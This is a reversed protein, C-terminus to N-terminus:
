RFRPAHIPKDLWTTGNRSALACAQQRVRRSLDNRHSKVRGSGRGIKGNPLHFHRCKAGIPAALISGRTCRRPPATAAEIRFGHSFPKAKVQGFDAAV